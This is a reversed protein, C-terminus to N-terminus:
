INRWDLQNLIASVLAESSLSWMDTAKVCPLRGLGLPLPSAAVKINILRPGGYVAAEGLMEDHISRENWLAIVHRSTNILDKNHRQASTTQSTPRDLWVELGCDELADALPEMLSTDEDRCALYVDLEFPDDVIDQGASRFAINNFMRLMEIVDHKVFPRHVVTDLGATRLAESAARRDGSIVLSFITNDCQEHRRVWDLIEYGDFDSVGECQDQCMIMFPPKHLIDAQVDALRDHSVVKHDPAAAGILESLLRRFRRNPEIIVITSAM